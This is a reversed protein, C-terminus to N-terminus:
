FECYYGIEALQDLPFKEDVTKTEQLCVVNPKHTKLWDILHPLRVSISNVNWTSIIMHTNEQKVSSRKNHCWCENKGTRVKKL